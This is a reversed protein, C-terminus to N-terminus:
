GTRCGRWPSPPGGSVGSSVRRRMDGRLRARLPEGTRFLLMTAGWGDVALDIAGFGRRQVDIWGALVTRGNVVMYLPENDTVGCAELTDLLRLFAARDQTDSVVTRVRGGYRASLAPIFERRLRLCEACGEQVFFEVTARATEQPVNTEAPVQPESATKAEAMKASSAPVAILAVSDSPTKVSAPTEIGRGMLTLEVARYRPDDSTTIVYFSKCFQGILQDPLTRMAVVAAEGAGVENTSAEAEACGCSKSIARIGIPAAGANRLKFSVTQRQGSPFDGLCATSSGEVVLRGAQVEQAIGGWFPVATLLAALVRGSIYRCRNFLFLHSSLGIM